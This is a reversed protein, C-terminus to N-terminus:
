QRWEVQMERELDSYWDQWLQELQAFAMQSVEPTLGTALFEEKLSEEGPSESILQVVFVDTHPHNVAVGSDGVHLSFVDQMFEPGAAEVGEIQSLSPAGGGGFPTFGTTMWSFEPPDLLTLKEDEKALEALPKGSNAQKVLEAAKSEAIAFAKQMRWAEVIEQDVEPGREPVYAPEEDIKWYLFEVDLEAGRIRQPRYAQLSESYAIQAFPIRQFSGTEFSMEMSQGLEYKEVALADVLDTMGATLEYKAALADVDVPKPPPSEPTIERLRLDRGYKGIASQIADFAAELRKQAPQRARDKAIENRIEERLKDDLPKYKAEEEAPKEAAEGTPAEAPPIAAKPKTDGEPPEDEKPKGEAKSDAAGSDKPAKADAPKETPKKAEKAQSKAPKDAKDSETPAPNNEPSDESEAKKEDDANAEAEDGVLAVYVHRSPKLIAGEGKDADDSEDPGEEQSSKKSDAPPIPNSAPTKAPKGSPPKSEPKAADEKDSPAPKAETKPAPEAPKKGGGAAPKKEQTEETKGAAPKSDAGESPAKDDPLELERYREKNDNYYKEIDEDTVDGKVKAAEEELFKNFDSKVYGFSVRRRRKFGPQPSYPDPYRDKAAEYLAALETESPSETVQEKFDAVHLSIMETKVRRRLRNDLEWAEHPPVVFIGARSMMLMQQALLEQSLQDMLHKQTMRGALTRKHIVAFDNTTLEGDGLQFLFDMVGDNDVVLGSSEAKAALLLKRVLDADTQAPTIGPTYRGFRDRFVGPGKPTGGRAQTERVVENLFELAMMHRARLSYLDNSTVSGQKWTLVVDVAQRSGGGGNMMQQLPGGIVFVFMLLVGVVILLIYQYKRFLHM